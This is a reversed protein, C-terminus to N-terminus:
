IKNVDFVLEQEGIYLKGNEGIHANLGIIKNNKARIFVIGEGPNWNLLQKKSKETLELM